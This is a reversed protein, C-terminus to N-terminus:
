NTLRCIGCAGIIARAHLFGRRVRRQATDRVQIHVREVRRHFQKAVGVQAPQRDHNAAAPATLGSAPRPEAAKLPPDNAPASVSM